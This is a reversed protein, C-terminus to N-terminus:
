STAKSDPLDLLSRFPLLHADASTACSHAFLGRVRTQRPSRSRLISPHAPTRPFASPPRPQSPVPSTRPEHPSLIPRWPRAHPPAPTRCLARPFIPLHSAHASARSHSSASPARSMPPNPSALASPACACPPTPPHTARAFSAAHPTLARTVAR